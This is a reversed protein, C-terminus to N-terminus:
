WFVSVFLAVVYALLPMAQKAITVYPSHMLAVHSTLSCCCIETLLSSVVQCPALLGTWTNKHLAVEEMHQDDLNHWDHGAIAHCSM